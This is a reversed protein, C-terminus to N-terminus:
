HTRRTLWTKLFQGLSKREADRQDIEAGLTVALERLRANELAMEALYRAIVSARFLKAEVTRALHFRKLAQLARLHQRNRPKHNM